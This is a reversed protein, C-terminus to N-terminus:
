NVMYANKNDQQHLRNTVQALLYKNLKEYLLMPDEKEEHVICFLFPKAAEFHVAPTALVIGKRAQPHYALGSNQFEQLIIRTNDLKWDPNFLFQTVVRKPAADVQVVRKAIGDYIHPSGGIRANVETFWINESEDYLADASLYGRYGLYQYFEALRLGEDVLKDFINKPLWYLPTSELTLKGKTYNLAGCALHSVDKDSIYYESYVTKGNPIYSEIIVPFRGKCTAWDWREDLYEGIRKIDGSLNFNTGMGVKDSDIQPTLYVIQNGAGGGNHIQKIVIAPYKELLERMISEAENRTRCVAGPSIKCKISSAFARFHSKSNALEDGANLFFDIGQFADVLDLAKAFRAIQSSPWLALIEKVDHCIKKLSKLFNKDLLALSDFLREDHENSSLSCITLSNREIGLFHIVYNLFEEDPQCPLIIVDGAQAFWFIRQVFMRMDKQMLLSNEIHNAILIRM